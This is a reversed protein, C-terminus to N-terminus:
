CLTYWTGFLKPASELSRPANLPILKAIKERTSTLRTSSECLKYLKIGYRARKNPLYQRCKIRGKFAVLSEDIAINKQPVYFQSFNKKYHEFLPRIKFLRDYNPDGPPPCLSNDNYHVFRLLAELRARTMVSRYLPINHLIDNSWYDRISPKKVLGFNLFLGWFTWM